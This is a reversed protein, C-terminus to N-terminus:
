PCAGACIGCSACLDPIVRALQHGPKDPHPEMAVADYPCDDYCRRCGNCNAPDVVAIPPQKPRPLLPLICLLLTAAGAILWLGGPSTAYMLPHVFLYHWDLDLAQPVISLDAREHSVTPKALALAILMAFSGWGLARSPFVDAQAVRQIHVWLALLLLLPIGIHLFVLLTFFRDSVAQPAIFNRTAPTSFIALRDFWEASAIASFQGLQDWVLWYGGIGSAYILWIVPVGTIWSFWRFGHYRGYFFERALHLLMVVIAADAAYRHLSRLIGGLWWQQHTYYEISTHIEEIGTDLVAFLYLGSATVIWVFFFGLAGLHRWPNGAAGFVADFFTEARQQLALGGQRFANLPNM